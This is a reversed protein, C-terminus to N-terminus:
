ALGVVGGARFRRGFVGLGSAVLGLDFPLGDGPGLPSRRFALQRLGGGREVAVLSGIVSLAKAEKGLAKALAEVRQTPTMDLTVTDPAYGPGIALKEMYSDPANLLGGAPALARLAADMSGSFRKLAFWAPSGPWRGDVDLRFDRSTVTPAFGWASLVDALNKGSIRGKYWSRSAGPAGEWGGSGQLLIGKLGMDLSNLAIGRRAIEHTHVRTIDEGDILVRGASPRELLNLTRILTSKGAGSRGIIGFVEGAGIELEIDTLAEVERGDAAHDADALRRRMGDEDQRRGFLVLDQRGNERAALNKIKLADSDAVDGVFKLPNGLM